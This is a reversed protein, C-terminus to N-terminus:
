RVARYLLYLGGLIVVGGILYAVAKSTSAGEPTPAPGTAGISEASCQQCGLSWPFFLCETCNMATTLDGVGRRRGIM